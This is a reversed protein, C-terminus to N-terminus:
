KKGFMGKVVEALATKQQRERIISQAEYLTEIAEDTSIGWETMAEIISNAHTKIRAAAVGDEKEYIMAGRGRDYIELM